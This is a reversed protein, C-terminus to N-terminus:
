QYVSVFTRYRILYFFQNLSKRAYFFLFFTLKLNLYVSVNVLVSYFIFIVLLITTSLFSLISIFTFLFDRESQHMSETSDSISWNKFNLLLIKLGENLRASFFIIAQDARIHFLKLVLCNKQGGVQGVNLGNWSRVVM